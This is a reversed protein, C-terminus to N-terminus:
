DEPDEKSEDEDLKDLAADQWRCHECDAICVHGDCVDPHYLHYDNM